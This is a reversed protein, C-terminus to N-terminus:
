LKMTLEPLLKMFKKLNKMVKIKKEFGFQEQLIVAIVEFSQEFIL